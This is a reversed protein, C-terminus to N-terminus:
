RSLAPIVIVALAGALMFPGFPLRSKRNARRTAILGIGTVAALLYGGLLGTLLPGAGFWGLYLGIIGSLKVDGWGMGEPYILVQLVFFLWVAAMGILGYSFHRGGDPTFLAGAGLAAIGIPYSPLTLVDPLRQYRADIFALAVGAVALYCFAPLEPSAGFRLWMAVLAAATVLGAAPYWYGFALRCEGCRSRLRVWGLLPIMDALGAPSGCAACRGLPLRLSEGRPVRAALMTVWCGATLGAVAMAATVIWGAADM